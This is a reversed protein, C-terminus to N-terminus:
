RYCVTQVRSHAPEAESTCPSTVSYPYRGATRPMSSFYCFSGSSMHTCLDRLCVHLGASTAQGMRSLAPCLARREQPVSDCMHFTRSLNPAPSAQFPRTQDQHPEPHNRPRTSDENGHSWKRQRQHSRKMQASNRLVGTGRRWM